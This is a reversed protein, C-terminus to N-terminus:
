NAKIYKKTTDFVSALDTQEVWVGNVKKYVTSVKVWAGDQKVHLTNANPDTYNYTVVLDSWSFNSGTANKHGGVCSISLPSTASTGLSISFATSSSTNTGNITVYRITQKGTWRWSGSIVISDWANVGSPLSPATWTISGTSLSTGNARLSATANVVISAM